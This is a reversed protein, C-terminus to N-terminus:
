LDLEFDTRMMTRYKQYLAEDLNEVANLFLDVPDVEVFGNPTRLMTTSIDRNDTELIQITLATTM